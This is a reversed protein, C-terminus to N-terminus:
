AIPLARKRNSAGTELEELGGHPAVAPRWAVHLCVGRSRTGSATEPPANPPTEEPLPRVTQGPGALEHLLDDLYTALECPAVWSPIALKAPSRRGLGLRYAVWRGKERVVELQFRDYVDFRM